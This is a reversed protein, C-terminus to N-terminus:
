EDFDADEDDDRVFRSPRNRPGDGRSRRPPGRRGGRKRRPGRGRGGSLEMEDEHGEYAEHAAPTLLVEREPGRVTPEPILSPAPLALVEANGQMVPTVTVAPQQTAPQQAPAARKERLTRGASMGVSALWSGMLGNGLALAHGGSKKGSMTEYIGYGQTAIALPARVDVGGVELKTKGFYGEAMSALFLTGQTEATHIVMAGTEAIAEKTKETKKGLNSLRGVAQSLAGQAQKETVPEGRLAKNLATPNKPAAM